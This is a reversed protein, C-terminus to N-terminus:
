SASDAATERLARVADEYDERSGPRFRLAQGGEDPQLVLREDRLTGVLVDTGGTGVVARLTVQEGNLTGRFTFSEEDQVACRPPSSDDCDAAVGVGTGSLEDGSRDWRLFVALEKDAAVWSDPVDGSGGCGALSVFAIV